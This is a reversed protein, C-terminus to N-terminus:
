QIKLAGSQTGRVEKIFGYLLAISLCPILSPIGIHIWIMVHYWGWLENLGSATFRNMIEVIMFRNTMFLPLLLGVFLGTQFSFKTMGIPAKNFIMLSAVYIVLAHVLVFFWVLTLGEGNTILRWPRSVLIFFANIHIVTLLMVIWALM